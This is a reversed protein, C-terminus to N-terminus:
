PHGIKSHFHRVILDTVHSSKPLILPHKVEPPIAARRSRGGIRLLGDGDVFPELKYSCSTKKLVEKRRRATNRDQFKDSNGNLNKLSQIAFGFQHHQLDCLIVKESQVLEQVKLPWLETSQGSKSANTAKVPRVDNSCYARHTAIASQLNVIARRMWAASAKAKYWSSTRHMYVLLETTELPSLCATALVKTRVEVDNTPLQTPQVTNLLPVDDKWLFEPGRSWRRNDLLQSATLSRSAEDAPNDKGPVRHWQEPSTHDRVHRVKNGVYVHFRRADNHIYTIVVESDTYYVSQLSTNDLERELMATVNVSVVAATLEMRPISMPKIPAVRAKSMLFSVHVDKNESVVRSKVLELSAIM